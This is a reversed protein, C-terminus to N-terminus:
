NNYKDATKEFDLIKINSKQVPFFTKLFSTKAFNVSLFWNVSAYYDFNKNLEKRSCWLGYGMLYNGAILLIYTIVFHTDFHYHFFNYGGVTDHILLIVLGVKIFIQNKLNNLYLLYTFLFAGLESYIIILISTTSDLKSDNYLLYALGFSLVQPSLIKWYDKTMKLRIERHQHDFTLLIMIKALIYFLMGLKLFTLNEYFIIISQGLFIFIFYLIIRFDYGKQYNKLFPFVLLLNTALLIVIQYAIQYHIQGFVKLSGLILYTAFIPYSKYVTFGKKEIKHNKM